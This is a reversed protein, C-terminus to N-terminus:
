VENKLVSSEYLLEQEFEREKRFLCCYLITILAIGCLAISLNDYTMIGVEVNTTNTMQKKKIHIYHNKTEINLVYSIAELSM